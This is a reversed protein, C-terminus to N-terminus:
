RTVQKDGPGLCTTDWKIMIITQRQENLFNEVVGHYWNSLTNGEDDPYEFLIEIKFNVFTSDIKPLVRSNCEYWRSGEGRAEREDREKAVDSRM